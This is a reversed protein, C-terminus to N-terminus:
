LWPRPGVQLSLVEFIVPRASCPKAIQTQCTSRAARTPAEGVSPAVASSLLIADSFMAFIWTSSIGLDAAIRQALVAPLYYTSGWAITQTLGLALVTRTNAPLTM